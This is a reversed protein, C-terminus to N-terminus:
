HFKRARCAEAGDPCLRSAFLKWPSRKSRLSRGHSCAPAGASRPGKARSGESRPKFPLAEEANQLLFQLLVPSSRPFSSFLASAFQLPVDRALRM